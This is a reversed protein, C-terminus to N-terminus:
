AAAQAVDEGASETAITSVLDLRLQSQTRRNAEITDDVHNGCNPCSWSLATFAEVAEQSKFDSHSYHRGHIMLAGCGASGNSKTMCIMYEVGKPANQHTQHGDGLCSAVIKKNMRDLPIKKKSCHGQHSVLNRVVEVLCM